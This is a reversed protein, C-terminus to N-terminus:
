KEDEEKPMFYGLRKMLRDDSRWNKLVKVHLEVFVKAELSRELDQRAETGIRKIMAGAKGVVIAKQSDREVYITASIYHTGDEREKYEDIDVAVAHPVEKDTHVMIKERIMEAAMFRLNVTSLQDMPYYRPGLPMRNVLAGILEPVGDGKLASIRHVEVYEILALHPAID